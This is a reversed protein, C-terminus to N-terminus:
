STKKIKDLEKLTERYKLYLELYDKYKVVEYGMWRLNMFGIKLCDLRIHDEYITRKNDKM